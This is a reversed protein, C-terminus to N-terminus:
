FGRRHSSLGAGSAAATAAEQVEPHQSFSLETEPRLDLDSGSLPTEAHILINYHNPFHCADFGLVTGVFRDGIRLRDGRDIVGGRDFEAFGVFAVRDIRSGSATEVDDTTVLEHVDGARVCRSAHPELSMGREHRHHVLVKVLRATLTRKPGDEEPNM